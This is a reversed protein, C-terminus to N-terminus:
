VALIMRFKEYEVNSTLAITKFFLHFLFISAFLEM